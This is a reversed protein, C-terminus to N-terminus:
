STCVNSLLLEFWVYVYWIIIVMRIFECIKRKQIIRVKLSNFYISIWNRKIINIIINNIWFLIYYLPLLLFHFIIIFKFFIIKLSTIKDSRESIIIRRRRGDPEPEHRARRPTTHHGPIKGDGKVKQVLASNRIRM